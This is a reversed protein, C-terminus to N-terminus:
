NFIAQYLPGRGDPQLPVLFLEFEGIAPHAVRFTAQTLRHTGSTFLLSFPQTRSSPAKLREIELLVLADAIGNVSFASGVLPDFSEPTLTALDIM